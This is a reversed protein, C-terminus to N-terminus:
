RRWSHVLRPHWFACGTCSGTAAQGSERRPRVVAAAAAAPEAEIGITFILGEWFAALERGSPAAHEAPTMSERVGVVRPREAVQGREAGAPGTSSTRAAGGALLAPLPRAVVVVVVMRQASSSSSNEPGAGGVNSSSSSRALGEARHRRPLLPAALRDSPLPLPREEQPRSPFCRCRLRSWRRRRHSVPPPRRRHQRPRRSSVSDPRAAPKKAGQLRGRGGGGAADYAATEAVVERRRRRRRGATGAAERRGGGGGGAAAAPQAGRRSDAGISTASPAGYGPLWRRDQAPRTPTRVTPWTSSWCSRGIRGAAARAAAGSSRQKRQQQQRRASSRSRSTQTSAERSSHSERHHGSKCWPRPRPIGDDLEQASCGVGHGSSSRVVLAATASRLMGVHLSRRRRRKSSSSPQQLQLRSAVHLLVAQLRQEAAPQRLHSSSASGGSDQTPTSTSDDFLRTTDLRLRDLEDHSSTASAAASASASEGISNSGIRRQGRAKRSTSRPRPQQSPTNRAPRRREM